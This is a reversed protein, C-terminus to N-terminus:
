ICHFDLDTMDCRSMDRSTITASFSASYVSGCQRRERAIISLPLVLGLCGDQMSM